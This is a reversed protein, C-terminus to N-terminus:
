RYRRNKASWEETTLATRLAKAVAQATQYRQTPEFALATTLVATLAPTLRVASPFTLNAKSRCNQEYVARYDDTRGHPLSVPYVGTLARFLIVGLAYLDAQQASLPPPENNIYASILEPPLYQANGRYSPHPSFDILAVQGAQNLVINSWTLDRHARGLRHLADLTPAISTIIYALDAPPVRGQGYRMAMSGLDFYAIALFYCFFDSGPRSYGHEWLAPLAIASSPLHAPLHAPLQAWLEALLTAEVQLYAALEPRKPAKIVVKQPMAATGDQPYVDALWIEALGGTTLWEHLVYTYHTGVLRAGSDWGNM